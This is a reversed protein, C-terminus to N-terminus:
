LRSRGRGGECKERVCMRYCSCRCTFNFLEVRNFEHGADWCVCERLRWFCAEPTEGAPTTIECRGGALKVKTRPRCGGHQLEARGLDCWLACKILAKVALFLELILPRILDVAMQLGLGGQRRTRTEVGRMAELLGVCVCVFM